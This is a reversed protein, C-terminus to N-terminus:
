SAAPLGAYSCKQLNRNALFCGIRECESDRCRKLFRCLKLNSRILLFLGTGKKYFSFFFILNKLRLCQHYKVNM